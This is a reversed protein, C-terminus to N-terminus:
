SNEEKNLWLSFRERAANTLLFDGKRARALLERVMAQNNEIWAYELSLTFLEESCPWNAEMLELVRAASSHSRLDLYVRCLEAANKLCFESRLLQELLHAYEEKRLRAAAGQASGLSIYERLVKALAKVVDLSEPAEQYAKEAAQLNRDAVSFQEALATTAYHVVEGDDNQQAEKLVDLYDAPEDNLVNLILGRRQVPSDLILADELPVVSSAALPRVNLSSTVADLSYKTEGDRRSSDATKQAATSIVMVALPGFIPMMWALLRSGADMENGKMRKVCTLCLAHLLIVILLVVM